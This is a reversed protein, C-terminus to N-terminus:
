HGQQLLYRRQAVHDKDGPKVKYEKIGGGDVKFSCSSFSDTLLSVSPIMTWIRVLHDNTGYYIAIIFRYAILHPRSISVIDGCQNGYYVTDSIPEM